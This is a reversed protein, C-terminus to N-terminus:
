AYPVACPSQYNSVFYLSVSRHHATGVEFVDLSQLEDNIGEENYLDGYLDEPLHGAAPCVGKKGHTDEYATCPLSQRLDGVM